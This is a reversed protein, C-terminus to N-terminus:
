ASFVVKGKMGRRESSSFKKDWEKVAEDTYLSGDYAILGANIHHQKREPPSMREHIADDIAILMMRYKESEELLSTDRERSSKDYLEFQKQRIEEKTMDNIKANMANM